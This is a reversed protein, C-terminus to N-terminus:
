ATLQQPGILCLPCTTLCRPSCAKLFRLGHNKVMMAKLLKSNTSAHYTGSFNNASVRSGLPVHSSHPLGRPHPIPRHRGTSSFNSLGLMHKLALQWVVPLPLNLFTQTQDSIMNREPDQPQYDLDSLRPSLVLFLMILLMHQHHHRPMHAALLGVLPLRTHQSTADRHCEPRAAEPSSWPISRSVM